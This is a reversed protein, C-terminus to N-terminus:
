AKRLHQRAAEAAAVAAADRPQGAAILGDYADFFAQLFEKQEPRAKGQRLAVRAAAISLGTLDSTSVLEPAATPRKTSSPMAFEGRLRADPNRPIPTTSIEYPSWKTIDVDFSDPRAGKSPETEEILFGPSVGWRMGARIEALVDHARPVDVLEAVATFEGRSVQAETIRGILQSVDHDVAFSCLGSRVRELDINEPGCRLTMNGMFSPLARETAVLLRYRALVGARTSTGTAQATVAPTREMRRNTGVPRLTFSPRWTSREPERRPPAAPVSYRMGPPRTQPGNQGKRPVSYRMSKRTTPAAVTPTENSSISGRPSPERVESFAVRGLYPFVPLTERFFIGRIECTRLRFKRKDNVTAVQRKIVCIDGGQPPTKTLTDVGKVPCDRCLRHQCEHLTQM